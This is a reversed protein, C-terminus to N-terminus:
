NTSCHGKLANASPELGERGVLALSVHLLVISLTHGFEGEGLWEEARFHQLIQLVNREGIGADDQVQALCRRHDSRFSESGTLGGDDLLCRDSGRIGNKNQGGSVSEGRTSFKRMSLRTHLTPLVHVLNKWQRM